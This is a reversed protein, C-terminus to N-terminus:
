LFTGGHRADMDHHTMSASPADARKLDKDRYNMLAVGFMVANSTGVSTGLPMFMSGVDMHSLPLKQQLKIRRVNQTLVELSYLTNPAGPFTAGFTNGGHCAFCNMVYQGEDTVVYQLPKSADDHRPSMGFARWTAQPEPLTPLDTIPLDHNTEELRDLVSQNFDAPLYVKQTLFRYGQRAEDSM